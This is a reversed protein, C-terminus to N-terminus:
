RLSRGSAGPVRTRTGSPRRSTSPTTQGRRRAIRPRRLSSRAPAPLHQVRQRRQPRRARAPPTRRRSNGACREALHRQRHQRGLQALEVVRLQRAAELPQALAPALCGRRRRRGIGGCQGGLLRAASAASAASLAPSCGRRHQQEAGGAAALGLDVQAGGRLRQGRPRWASTSTGSILRVGCSSARKAARKRRASRMTTAACRGSAPAAGACSAPRRVEPRASRTSPVRMATNADIGRSRGSRRRRLARGESCAAPLRASNPARGPPTGRGARLRAPAAPSPWATAPSSAARRVLAAVLPQGQRLADAAARQRATRRTSMFWSGCALPACCPATAAAAPPWRCCRM